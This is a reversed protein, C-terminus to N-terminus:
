KKWESMAKELAGVFTEAAQAGTVAYRDNLVFFPVGRVGIQQSEYIDNEVHDAYEEGALIESVRQKELGVEAALTALTDHDAINAGETFYASFLREEMQDGLGKEKAFQIIRHADFSNAMVTKGMEYQLGEEAAMETVHRNAGVAQERTWGKVEMLYETASKGPETQLGPNLQYSKWEVEVKDKDPFQNLAKEFRRKGIYCFPCMVDSWIEVKMKEM